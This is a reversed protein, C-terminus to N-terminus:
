FLKSHLKPLKNTNLKAVCIPYLPMLSATPAPLSRFAPKSDLEFIHVSELLKMLINALAVSLPYGM